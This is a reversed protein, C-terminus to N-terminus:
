FPLKEDDPDGADANQVGTAIGAAAFEMRRFAGYPDQNHLEFMNEVTKFEEDTCPRAGVQQKQRKDTYFDIVLAVDEGPERPVQRFRAGVKVRKTRLKGTIGAKIIKEDDLVLNAWDEGGPQTSLVAVDAIVPEAAPMGVSLVEPECVRKIRFAVIAGVKALADWESFHNGGGADINNVM